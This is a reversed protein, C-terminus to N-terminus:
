DTVQWDRLPYFFEFRLFDPQGIEKKETAQRSRFLVNVFSDGVESKTSSDWLHAHRMPHTTKKENADSDELPRSCTEM